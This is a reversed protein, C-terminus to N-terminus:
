HVCFGNVCLDNGFCIYGCSGCNQPDTALMAECGDAAMGNCDKYGVNCNAIACSGGDCRSTADPLACVYGCSGCNQADANSDVECGDAVIGNCDRFPGNCSM